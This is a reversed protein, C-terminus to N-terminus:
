EAKLRQQAKAPTNRHVITHLQNLSVDLAAPEDNQCILV